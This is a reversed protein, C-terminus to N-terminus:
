DTLFKKTKGAFNPFNAKLYEQMERYDRVCENYRQRLVVAPIVTSGNEELTYIVNKNTVTFPLDRVYEFYVFGVVLSTLGYGIEKLDDWIEDDPDTLFEDALEKGFLDVLIRDEYRSIYPQLKTFSNQAIAWKGTFDSTQIM